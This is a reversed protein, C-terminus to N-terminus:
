RPRRAFLTVTLSTTGDGGTVAPRIWRTMELVQEVKEATFSMANGNPDNLTTWNSPTAENSGQIALAGGGGFTGVVQVSRDANLPIGYAQGVDTGTQTMTPWTVVHGDLGKDGVVDVKTFSITAM